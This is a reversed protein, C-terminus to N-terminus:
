NIVLTVPAKPMVAHKSCQNNNFTTNIILKFPVILITFVPKHKCETKKGTHVIKLFILFPGTNLFHV